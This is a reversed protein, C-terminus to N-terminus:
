EDKEGREKLRVRRHQIAAISRHLENALERDTTAQELIKMDEEFTYSRKPYLNAGSNKRYQEQYRRKYEKFKEVDKYDKKCKM